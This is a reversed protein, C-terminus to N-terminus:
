VSVFKELVKMADAGEETLFFSSVASHHTQDLPVTL